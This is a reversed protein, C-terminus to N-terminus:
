SRTERGATTGCTRRANAGRMRRQRIFDPSSDAVGVSPYYPVPKGDRRGCRLHPPNPKACIWGRGALPGTRAIRSDGRRYDGAVCGDFGGKTYQDSGSPFRDRSTARCLRSPPITM